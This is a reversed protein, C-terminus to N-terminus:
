RYLLEIRGDEDMVNTASLTEFERPDLDITGTHINKVHLTNGSGGKRWDPRGLNSVKIVKNHARPADGGHEEAADDPSGQNHEIGYGALHNGEFRVGDEVYLGWGENKEMWFQTATNGTFRSVQHGHPGPEMSQAIHVGDGGCRVATMRDFVHENFWEGRFHWGHGGCGWVSVDFRNNLQGGEVLVGDGGKGEITVNDFTAEGTFRQDGPGALKLGYGGTGDGVIRVDRLTVGSAAIQVGDGGSTDITGATTVGSAAGQGVLKVPKDVLIDAEEVPAALHITGGHDPLADIAAQITAFEASPVVSFPLQGGETPDSATM